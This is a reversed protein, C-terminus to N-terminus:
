LGMEEDEKVSLNPWNEPNDAESDYEITERFSKGTLVAFEFPCISMGSSTYHTEVSFMPTWLQVKRSWRYWKGPQLKLRDSVNTELFLIVVPFDDFLHRAYAQGFPSMSKFTEETIKFLRVYKKNLTM